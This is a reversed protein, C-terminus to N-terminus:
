PNAWNGSPIWAGGPTREYHFGMCEVDPYEDHSAIVERCSYGAGIEMRVVESFMPHRPDFWLVDGVITGDEDFKAVPYGGRGHVFYVRGATRADILAYKVADAAWEFNGHGVRLTGYVFVRLLDDADNPVSLDPATLTPRDFLLTM